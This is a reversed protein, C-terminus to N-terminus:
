SCNLLSWESMSMVCGSMDNGLFMQFNTERLCARTVTWCCKTWDQLSLSCSNAGPFGSSCSSRNWCCYRCCSSDLAMYQARVPYVRGRSTRCKVALQQIDSVAKSAESDRDLNQHRLCTSMFLSVLKGGSNQTAQKWDFCNHMKKKKIAIKDRLDNYKHIDRRSYSSHFIWYRTFFNTFNQQNKTKKKGSSRFDYRIAYMHVQAFTFSDSCKQCRTQLLICQLLSMGLMPFAPSAHQLLVSWSSM